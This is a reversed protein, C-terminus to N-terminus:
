ARVLFERFMEAYNKDRDNITLQVPKNLDLSYIGMISRADVIYRGSGVDATLDSKEILRVFAKVKDFSNLLITLQTKNM